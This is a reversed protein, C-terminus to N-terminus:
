AFDLRRGSADTQAAIGGSEKNEKFQKVYNLVEQMSMGKTGQMIQKKFLPLMLKYKPYETNVLATIEEWTVPKQGDLTVEEEFDGELQMLRAIKGNLRRLETQYTKITLDKSDVIEKLATDKVEKKTRKSGTEGKFMRLGLLFFVGVAVTLLVYVYDEM